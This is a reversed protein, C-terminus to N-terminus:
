EKPSILSLRWDADKKGDRKANPWLQFKHASTIGDLQIDRDITINLFTVTSGDKLKAENEWARGVFDRTTEPKANTKTISM